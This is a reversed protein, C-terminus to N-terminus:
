NYTSKIGIYDRYLLLFSDKYPSGLCVRTYQTMTSFSKKVGFGLLLILRDKYIRNISFCRNQPSGSYRLGQSNNFRTSYYFFTM